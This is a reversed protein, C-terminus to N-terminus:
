LCIFWVNEFQENTRIGLLRCLRELHHYKDLSSGQKQATLSLLTQSDQYQAFTKSSPHPLPAYFFALSGEFNLFLCVLKPWDWNSVTPVEFSM